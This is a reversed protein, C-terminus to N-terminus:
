SEELEPFIGILYGDIFPRFENKFEVASMGDHLMIDTAKWFGMLMFVVAKLQNSSMEGLENEISHSTLVAMKLVRAVEEHTPKRM